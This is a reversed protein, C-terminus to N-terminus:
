GSRSAGGLQRPAVAVAELDHQIWKSFFLKSFVFAPSDYLRFGVEGRQSLLYRFCNEPDLTVWREAILNLATRNNGVLSVFQPLDSLSANELYALWQFWEEQGGEILVGKTLSQIETSRRALM